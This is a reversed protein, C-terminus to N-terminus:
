KHAVSTVATIMNCDGGGDDVRGSLHLNGSEDWYGLDGTHYKEAYVATPSIFFVDSPNEATGKTEISFEAPPKGVCNAESEPDIDSLNKEYLSVLGGAETQGYAQIVVNAHGELKNYDESQLSAGGFGIRPVFWDDYEALYRLVSPVTLILTPKFEKIISVWRAANKVFPTEIQYFINHIDAMMAWSLGAVHWPSALILIRESPQIKFKRFSIEANRLLNSKSNWLCKPNGTSGSSFLGIQLDSHPNPETIAIEAEEFRPPIILSNEQSQLVSQIIETADRSTDIKSISSVM